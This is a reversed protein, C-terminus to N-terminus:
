RGRPGGDSHVVAKKCSDDRIRELLASARSDACGTGRERAIRTCPFEAASSQGQVNFDVVTFRCDDIRQTATLPQGAATPQNEIARPRQLRCDDIGKSVQTTLILGRDELLSSTRKALIQTNGPYASAGVEPDNVSEVGAHEQIRVASAFDRYDRVDLCVQVQERAASAVQLLSIIQKL